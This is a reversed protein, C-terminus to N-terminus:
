LFESPPRYPVSWVWSSCMLFVERDVIWMIRPTRTPLKSIKFTSLVLKVLVNSKTTLIVDDIVGGCNDVGSCYGTFILSSEGTDLYFVEVSNEECGGLLYAKREYKVATFNSRAFKMSAKIAIWRNGPRDFVQIISTNTQYYAGGFIFIYDYLPDHLAAPQNLEFLSDPLSQHQGFFNVKYTSSCHPGCAFLYVLHHILVLPSQGQVNLHLPYRIKRNTELEYLYLCDNEVCPLRKPNFYLCTERIVSTPVKQLTPNLTRIWILLVGGLAHRPRLPTAM